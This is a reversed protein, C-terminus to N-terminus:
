AGGDDGKLCTTEIQELRWVSYDPSFVAVYHVNGISLRIREPALAEYQGFQLVALIDAVTRPPGGSVAVTSPLPVISDVRLRDDDARLVLVSQEWLVVRRPDAALSRGSRDRLARHEYADEFLRHLVQPERELVRLADAWEMTVSNAELGDSVSRRAERRGWPIPYHQFTAMM